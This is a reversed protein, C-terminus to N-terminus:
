NIDSCQLVNPTIYESGNVHGRGMAHETEHILAFQFDVNLEDKQHYTNYFNDIWKRDILIYPQSNSPDNITGDFEGGYGGVPNGDWNISGSNFIKLYGANLVNQATKGIEACEGGKNILQEIENNVKELDDSTPVVGECFAELPDITQTENCYPEFYDESFDGTLPAPPSSSGSGGGGDRYKTCTPDKSMTDDTCPDAYDGTGSNSDDGGDDWSGGDDSGGGGDDECGIYDIDTIVCTKMEADCMETIFYYSCEETQYDYQSKYPVSSKTNKWAYEGFKRLQKKLMKRAQKVKPVKARALRVVNDYEEYSSARDPAYSNGIVVEVYEFQNNAKRILGPPFKLRYAGYKYNAVEGDKMLTGVVM